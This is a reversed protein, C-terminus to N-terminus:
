GAVEVGARRVHLYALQDHRLTVQPSQATYRCELVVIGTRRAAAHASDIIAAIEDPEIGCALLFRETRESTATDRDLELEEVLVTPADEGGELCLLCAAM